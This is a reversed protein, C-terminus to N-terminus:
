LVQYIKRCTEKEKLVRLQRSPRASQLASVAAEYMHIKKLHDTM